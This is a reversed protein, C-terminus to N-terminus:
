PRVASVFLGANNYVILMDNLNVINDGNLDSIAYGTKFTSADNFVQIIDSLEIIGDDNVDGSYMAYRLPSSSVQSLNNGYAQIDSSTFDYESFAMANYNYGGAKSWTEICNRHKLEIYYNGSPLNNFKYNGTFNVSDIVSISSDIINFPSFSQRIYARVTDKKNLKNISTNYFGQMVTKINFFTKLVYLGTSRDSAIIKGSSLMQGGWCGDYNESNNLPYTDYWAVETPNSPNSIDILRVGASYHGALAYNGYVEVNHVISTTIGTPQWSIVYTINTLDQINWIKLKFPATGIEDTVMLYKRDPTLATNHPGSGPLNSFSTVRTLLDKNTASIITVKAANINAAYITDNVVRCDHIYDANYAGRKVPTEPDNTLDYVTVGQGISAGNIYLYPGSQSITHARSYGAPLFKKIYHISDPLYQLDVIQIGSNSIESVHYSYHSYTKHERWINSSNGPSTSPLFGVQHINDADTVDFFATGDFCGMIAYERGDPAVYAEIASYPTSHQNLNTILYMNKSGLQSYSQQYIFVFVLCFLHIYKKM